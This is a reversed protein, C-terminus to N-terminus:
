DGDIRLRSVDTELFQLNSLGAASARSRATRLATPDQDVGLVSGTPGVLSAALLAVDGVGSGVDLLRQGAAIGADRFLRETYPALTQAQRMLRAHEDESSGLLYAPKAHALTM